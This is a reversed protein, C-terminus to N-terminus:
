KAIPWFTVRLNGLDTNPNDLSRLAINKNSRSMVDLGLNQALNEQLLLSYGPYHTGIGHIMLIKIPQQSQLHSDVGAVQHGTVICPGLNNVTQTERLLEEAIGRGVARCGATM